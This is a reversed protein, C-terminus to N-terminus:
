KCLPQLEVNVIVNQTIWVVRKLIELEWTAKSLDEYKFPSVTHVQNKFATSLLMIFGCQAIGWSPAPSSNRCAQGWEVSIHYQTDSVTHPQNRSWLFGRRRGVCYSLASGKVSVCPALKEPQNTLAEQHLSSGGFVGLSLSRYRSWGNLSHGASVELEPRRCGCLPNNLSCQTLDSFGLSHNGWM